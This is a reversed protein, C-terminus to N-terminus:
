VADGLKGIVKNLILDSLVIEFNCTEKFFDVHSDVSGMEKLGEQEVMNLWMHWSEVGVYESKTAGGLM